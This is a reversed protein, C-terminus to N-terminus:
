GRAVEGRARVHLPPPCGHLQQAPDLAECDRQRPRAERQQHGVVGKGHPHFGLAAEHVAEDDPFPGRLDCERVCECVRLRESQVSECVRVCECV